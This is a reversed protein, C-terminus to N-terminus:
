MSGRALFTIKLQPPDPVGRSWVRPLATSFLEFFFSLSFKYFTNLPGMGELLFFINAAIQGSPEYMQITEQIEIMTRDAEAVQKEIETTQTKITELTAIVKLDELISGEVSSLAQLLNDELERIKVKFEGQLKVLDARKKDVDPRESKLLANMCGWWVGM